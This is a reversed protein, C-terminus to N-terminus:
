RSIVLRLVLVGEDFKVKVFYCGEPVQNLDFRYDESGSCIRKVVVQGTM